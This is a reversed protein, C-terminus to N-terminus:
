KGRQITDSVEIITEVFDFKEVDFLGRDSLKLKPIVLLSMFSLTMFPNTLPCGIESAHELLGDIGESVKAASDATMLGGIELELRSSKGAGVVSFGGTELSANAAEAMEKTDVGVVICNHSDHAVTSAIAGERLGFGEIFGNATPAQAYRNVVSLRLIDRGPDPTVVGNGIALWNEGKETVIEDRLAMITRVKTREGKSKLEFDVTRKRIEPLKRSITEHEIPIVTEGHHAVKEGAIWTERVIFDKLDDVVAFDAARGAEFWGGPLDYHRAPLLTAAVISRMPEIGMSVAERLTQDMHGRLLDHASRDDSVLMFPHDGAFEALAALNKSASGQRVQIIMGAEFKELAEDSSTCEHDTTIGRSIYKRLDQDSLLPAHGDVPKGNSKAAEIKKLVDDDGAVAGPFNMMEGLAVMEPWTLMEAVEHHTLVAGSTEFPTAPVCSPATFFCRMPSNKSDNIMFRVGDMGFVNAIEHPDSVIATTGHPMIAESFRSPSLHSSEIHIHGDIFGPILFQQPATGLRDITTIISDSFAIRGPYIEGTVVDVIQGELYGSAVEAASGSRIGM